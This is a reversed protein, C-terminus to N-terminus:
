AAQKTRQIETAIAQLIPYVQYPDVANGLARLRATRSRADM